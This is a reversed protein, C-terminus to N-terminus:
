KGDQTQRIVRDCIFVGLHGREASLYKHIVIYRPYEGPPFRRAQFPAHEDINHTARLWSSGLLGGYIFACERQYFPTITRLSSM